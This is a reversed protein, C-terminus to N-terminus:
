SILFFTLHSINEKCTDHKCPFGCNKVLVFHLCKKSFTPSLDNLLALLRPLIKVFWFGFRKLNENNYNDLFYFYPTEILNQIMKGFDRSFNDIQKADDTSCFM